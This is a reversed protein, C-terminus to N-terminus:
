GDTRLKGPLTVKFSSGKEPLNYCTAEGEHAEAIASVVSLGVGTGQEKNTQKGRYFKQFLYPLDEEPIGPGEDQVELIVNKRSYQLSIQIKTEAPSYKIANDVLNLMMHYLRVPDGLIMYSDGTEDFLLQISKNLAAGEVDELVEAIVSHLDCAHREIEVIEEHTVQLLHHIMELMRDTASVIQSIFREGKENLTMVKGLLQAFGKISTLPSKLDHSLARMFEARDKELQKVYTIDQMVSITGVEPLHQSTALYINDGVMVEATKGVSRSIGDFLQSIHNALLEQAAENSVLVNGQEDLILLPETITQATAVIAAQQRKSEAFLRANEVATAMPHAFAGLRAIDENTFEGDQKNFLTLVGVVRDKIILPVCAISKPAAGSINDTAAFYTPYNTPDNTVISERKEAAEWIIGQTIPRPRPLNKGFVLPYLGGVNENMLYLQVSQVPWNKSVQEVLVNYVRSLDLSTSVARSVENLATLERVRHALAQDTAQYLRANQIAIAAFDAIASLLREDRQSFPKGTKRQGAGIVGFTVGGLTIPVYLLSEVLYGTKVKIQEEGPKRYARLPEATTLVKGVLNDESAPLRMRQISEDEIGQQAELFLEGTNEDMLWIATEDASTLVQATEVVKNLVEDPDLQSTIAKAIQSLAEALDLKEQLTGTQLNPRDVINILIQLGGLDIIDGNSVPTPNNVGISRGNRWTGNTSGVDIAYLNTITPRLMLHQRSVGQLDDFYDNLDVLNAADLDRGLVVEGNLELGFQLSPDAVLGFRVRWIPTNHALKENTDFPVSKFTVDGAVHLSTTIPIVDQFLSDSKRTGTDKAM